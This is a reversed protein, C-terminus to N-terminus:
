NGPLELCDMGEIRSFHGRTGYDGFYVPYFESGGEGQVWLCGRGEGGESFSVDIGVIFEILKFGCFCFDIESM